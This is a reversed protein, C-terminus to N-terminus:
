FARFDIRNKTMWEKLEKAQDITLYMEVRIWQKPNEKEEEAQAKAKVEAMEQATPVKVPEPQIPMQARKQEEEKARAEAEMKRKQLDALRQGEALAFSVDLTNKYVETAEFGYEPLHTIIDLDAKIKALAATMEDEVKAMTVSANLWSQQQIRNLELWAPHALTEYLSNIAKQKEAKKAAEYDKVQKDIIGVPKDIIKIIENVQAKFENFPIMYEKERKIREDNLAKKLANLSARDAKAEKIQDDNYVITEYIKAKEEINKKLEEYNFEVIGQKAVVKFEM